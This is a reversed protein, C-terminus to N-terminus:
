QPWHWRSRLSPHGGTCAQVARPLMSCQQVHSSTVNGGVQPAELQQAWSSGMVCEVCACRTVICLIMRVASESDIISQVTVIAGLVYADDTVMTVWAASKPVDSTSLQAGPGADKAVAVGAIQSQAWLVVFILLTLVFFPGTVNKAM